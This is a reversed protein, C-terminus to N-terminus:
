NTDTDATPPRITARILVHGTWYITETWEDTTVTTGGITVTLEGSTGGLKEGRLVVTDTPANTTTGEILIYTNGGGPERISTTTAVFTKDIATGAQDLVAATASINPGPLSAAPAAAPQYCTLVGLMLGSGLFIAFKRM